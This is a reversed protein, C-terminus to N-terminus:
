GLPWLLPTSLLRELMYNIHQLQYYVDSPTKNKYFKGRNTTTNIKKPQKILNLEAIIFQTQLFVDVPLIKQYSNIKPIYMEKLKIIKRLNNLNERAKFAVQIVDKPTKNEQRTALHTGDPHTGFIATSLMRKTYENDSSSTLRRSLIMLTTSLDEKARIVQSFVENPSIKTRGNLLSLHYFLKFIEQYVMVPTKGSFYNPSANSSALKLSHIEKLKVVVLESLYYVDTPQYSIPTSVVIPPPRVQLTIAYDYLEALVSVHLEYVHMPKVQKEYSVPLKYQTIGREDLLEVALQNAYDVQSFVDSPTYSKANATQTFIFLLAFFITILRSAFFDKKAYSFMSPPATTKRAEVSSKLNLCSM